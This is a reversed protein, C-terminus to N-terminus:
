ESWIAPHIVHQWRSVNVPDPFHQKGERVIYDFCKAVCQQRYSSTQSPASNVELVYPTGEADVMVDVGCFDTGSVKAAKLAEVIVAIPWEGWKVNDFRGGQAVNWAVASADAPTKKAVWAVCNQICFVRYEAVKDILRSIYGGGWRSVQMTCTATDGVIINRGQAHRVPRGVWKGEDLPYPVIVNGTGIGFTEPVSVGAAQMDLRGQRKDSCWHISKATNVVVHNTGILDSTCGWRFVILPEPGWDSPWEQSPNVWNRVTRLGTTSVATIGNCSGRGLKRRRLIINM